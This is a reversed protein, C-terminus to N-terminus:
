NNWNAKLHNQFADKFEIDETNRINRDYALYYQRIDGNPRVECTLYCQNPTDKRRIFVIYDTGNIIHDVYGGVCHHMNRGEDILDQGCTPVFVKFDGYEFEWAKAHQAYNEAIKKNDFEIKRLEYERMTEVYERMYNNVKQPKKELIRCTNIYKRINGISGENYEYLKGRVLYYACVSMEEATYGYVEDYSLLKSFIEEPFDKITAEGWRKKAAEIKAYEQFSYFDYEGSEKAEDTRTKLYATFEKFNNAIYDLNANSLQNNSLKMNDLREATTIATLITPFYDTRNSRGFMHYLTYCLQSPRNSERWPYFLDAVATKHTVTKVPKGSLGLFQGNSIDFKYNGKAGDISITIINREKTYNSM